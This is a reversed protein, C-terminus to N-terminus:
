RQVGTFLVAVRAGPAIVGDRQLCMLGALGASGTHSVAIGTAERWIRNAEELTAEDAVVTTGGTAAM